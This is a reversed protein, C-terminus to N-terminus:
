EVLPPDLYPNADFGGPNKVALNNEVRKVGPTRAAITQAEAKEASNDVEGTLTVVGDDVRTVIEFAETIVNRVLASEIASQMEKDTLRSKSVQIENDVQTVGTTHRAIDEAANKTSLTSVVGTLTVVSGVVEPEVGFLSVRPDLLFADIIATKIEGATRVPFKTSRKYKDLAWWKVEVEDTSVEEVGNVWADSGARRKEAASGVIGSLAVRGDDVSVKLLGDEVLADWDLRRKIDAFIEQDTRTKEYEITIRNDVERVGKVRKALRAAGEKETWSDVSGTLTAVGDKAEVKIGSGKAVIDAAIEQEIDRQIESDERAAPALVLRNSVARVGKVTEALLAAREHALLNPVTGTLEVIGATVKPHVTASPVISDYLFEREIAKQVDADNIINDVDDDAGNDPAREGAETASNHNNNSPTCSLVSVLALPLLLRKLTSM